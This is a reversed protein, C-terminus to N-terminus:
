RVEYSKRRDKHVEEYVREGAVKSIGKNVLAVSQQISQGVM